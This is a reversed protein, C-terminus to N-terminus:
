MHFFVSDLMLRTEAAFRPWKDLSDLKTIGALVRKMRAENPDRVDPQPMEAFTFPPQQRQPQGSPVPPPAVTPTSWGQAGSPTGPAAPGAPQTPAATTELYVQFRNMRAETSAAQEMMLRELAAMRELHQQNQAEMQAMMRELTNQLGQATDSM